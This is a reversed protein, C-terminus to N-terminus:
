PRRESRNELEEVLAALDPSRERPMVLVEGNAEVVVLDSAGIITARRSETWVINREAELLRADGVIANGEPDTGRSRSVASWVGLDDWEFRAEITAVREAREMVAVDIAVPDSAAFFGDVDSADLRPLAERMEPSHEAVAALLDAARWIFIG